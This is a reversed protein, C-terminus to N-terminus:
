PVTVDVKCPYSFEPDGFLLLSGSLIGLEPKPIHTEVLKGNISIKVPKTLDLLSEHLWVRLKLGTAPVTEGQDSLPQQWDAAQVKEDNKTADATISISNDAPNIRGDLHILKNVLDNTTRLWYAGKNKVGDHQFLTCTVRKPHPNRTFQMLWEPGPKYDIGHGNGKHLELHNVYGEPDSKQLSNLLEHKKIANTVRGFMTDKEGVDTRFPLNRLNEVHISTGEGCAMGDAAALQDPYRCALTETGYGGESIGLMYVRNPDIDWYLIAHRIMASYAQCNYEKWWRGQNDNVMRPVFYIANAPYLALSLKIQSNWEQTNVPWGHPNPLKDATGGGGHMAIILPWGNAPKEGKQLVVYPMDLKEGIHYSDARIKLPEGPVKPIPTPLIFKKDWGSEHAAKKYSVVVQERTKGIDAVIIDIKDMPAAKGQMASVFWSQTAPNEAATVNGLALTLNLSLFLRFM